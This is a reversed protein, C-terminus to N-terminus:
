LLPYTDIGTHELCCLTNALKLGKVQKQLENLAKLIAQPKNDGRKNAVVKGDQVVAYELHQKSVDIGIAYTYQAMMM